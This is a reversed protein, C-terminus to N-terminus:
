NKFLGQAAKSLKEAAKGAFKAPRAPTEAEVLEAYGTNVLYERVGGTPTITDGVRYQKWARIIRVKKLTGAM